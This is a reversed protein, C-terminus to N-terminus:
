GKGLFFETLGGKKEAKPQDEGTGSVKSNFNISSTNRMQELLYAEKSRSTCFYFHDFMSMDLSYMQGESLNPKGTASWKFINESIADNIGVVKEYAMKKFSITEQKKDKVNINGTSMIEDTGALIKSITGNFGNENFLPDWDLYHTPKNCHFCFSYNEDEEVYVRECESCTKRSSPLKVVEIKPNPIKQMQGKEDPIELYDPVEQYDASFLERLANKYVIRESNIVQSFISVLEKNDAGAMMVSMPIQPPPIIQDKASAEAM